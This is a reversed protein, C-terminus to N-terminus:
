RLPGVHEVQAASRPDRGGPDERLPEPHGTDVERLHLDPAGAPEHGPRPEPDGVHGLDIESGPRERGHDGEVGQDMKGPALM